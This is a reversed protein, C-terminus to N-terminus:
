VGYIAERAELDDFRRRSAEGDGRVDVCYMQLDHWRRANMDVEFCGWCDGDGRLFSWVVWKPKWVM